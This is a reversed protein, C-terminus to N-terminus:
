GGKNLQVVANIIYTKESFALPFSISYDIGESQFFLALANKIIPKVTKV